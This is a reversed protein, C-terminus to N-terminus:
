LGALQNLKEKVASLAQKPDGIHEVAKEMPCIDTGKRNIIRDTLINYEAKIGSNQLVALGDKSMVNAFVAGVGMYAYLLAAAKGVIKDYAFCGKVDQRSELVSILPKIGSETSSFVAKGNQTIVCTYGQEPFRRNNM